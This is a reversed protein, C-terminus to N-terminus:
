AIQIAGYLLASAALTSGLAGLVYCGLVAQNRRGAIAAVVTGSVLAYTSAITAFVVVREPLPSLALRPVIPALALLFVAGASTAAHSMRWLAASPREIARFFVFGIAQGLLLVVCGHVVLAVSM